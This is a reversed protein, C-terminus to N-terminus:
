ALLQQSRKYMHAPADANGAATVCCYGLSCVSRKPECSHSHGLGLPCAPHQVSPQGELCVLRPHLNQCGAGEAVDRYQLCHLM